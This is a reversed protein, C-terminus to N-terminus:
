VQQENENTEGVADVESITGLFLPNIFLFIPLLSLPAEEIEREQSGREGRM